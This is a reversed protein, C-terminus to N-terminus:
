TSKAAPGSSKEPAPAQTRRAATTGTARAPKAVAKPVKADKAPAKTAAESGAASSGRGRSPAATEASASAQGALKAALEADAAAQRAAARDLRERETQERDK